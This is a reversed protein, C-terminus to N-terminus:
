GAKEGVEGVEHQHETAPRPWHYETSCSVSAWLYMPVKTHVSRRRSPARERM